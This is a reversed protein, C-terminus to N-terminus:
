FAIENAHHDIYKNVYYSNFADLSWERRFRAPLRGTGFVPILHASRLISDIHIATVDREGSSRDPQVVWMGTDRDPSGGFRKFWEVIACSYTSGEFDFSVFSKVRAVGMGAFGPKTDDDVIFVCDYRPPGKRWSPTCRIWERRMGRVGCVDSPAFFTAVASRFTAIDSISDLLDEEGDNELQIINDETLKLQEYLFQQLYKAVDPMKLHEALKDISDFSKDPVHTLFVAM